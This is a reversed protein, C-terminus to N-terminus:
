RRPILMRKQEIITSVRCLQHSSAQAAAIARIDDKDIPEAMAAAVAEAESASMAMALAIDEEEQRLAQLRRAEQVFRSLRKRNGCM